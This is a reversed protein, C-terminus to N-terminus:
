CVTAAAPEGKAKAARLLLPILVLAVAPFIMWNITAWGATNLLAGSSFSAAAVTGFILFDNAGQAKSREEPAYSDTVMATAGIFGFNWGVGLIVLSIWFHAIALGSLAVTASAAILLLGAASVREKGFRAILHGTFFSPGFMALIHWQIGLAAEGITHGCGVMAVPAATMVFSMLGYSVLGTAAALMFRPTSVIERLPRGTDAVASTAVVKPTRLLALLPLALLALAAQSLFSGALPVGAFADRTWIVLQPGIVGAVLGGIMVRSIAKARFEVPAADTAAFRYSQVFSGYFGALFTGLCFMAFAAVVIGLTAVLGSLLGISAGLLYGSRRSFRRMIFAAPVTGLALGLQYLSVPLTVLFASPALTQGVVGGLSVIISPSAGGLAQAAALILVNRRALGEATM